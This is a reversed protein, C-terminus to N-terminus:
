ATPQFLISKLDPKQKLLGATTMLDVVRQMRTTNLTTPYGPLTIVSAVQPDIKAYGPLVEEVRKRDGTAIGQAKMIARQFAAAAKPNKSTFDQTSVYGSIPLGTVPESGGDVAVRAGQKKQTDSLFPEVIHVADVQGKELAAAMQPFPIAVYTVKSADVNNAKLIANLTLSQINNLINVAVKKGELDKATKIKSDSKVLVNMMNSTLTAGEAVISLKLTGKENAQLFSVYNAGAILDVDGKALAPLAQISQQVPKIQVKLGEAEFLKQKQAIHLAAGDVLPLSAVTLTKKELGKSSGSSDDSDGCGVALSAVLLLAGLLVSRRGSQRM